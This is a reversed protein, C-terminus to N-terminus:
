KRHQILKCPLPQDGLISVGAASRIDVFAEPLVGEAAAALTVIASVGMEQLPFYVPALLAKQDVLLQAQYLGWDWGKIQFSHSFSVSEEQDKVVLRFTCTGGVSAVVEDFTLPVSIALEVQGSVVAAAKRMTFETNLVGTGGLVFGYQVALNCCNDADRVAGELQLRASFEDGLNFGDSNEREKGRVGHTVKQSVIALKKSGVVAAPAPAPAPAPAASTALM